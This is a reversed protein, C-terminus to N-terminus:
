LSPRTSTELTISVEQKKGERYFTLKVTDGISRTYLAKRLSQISTVQVDEIATIVDYRQLGAKQASGNAQVDVVIVGGDVEKPLALQEEVSKPVNALPHMSIGLVPREIMGKEELENVIKIAENSPIAFGIGEVISGGIKLSNIGIVQGAENILAGGSNGPNIAADTQIATMTWDKSGDGDIDTDVPRDVASIIGSTVSTALESGLPSGIAFTKEGVRVQDSDGFEAIAKVSSSSIKLVALDTWTDGGILEADEKSGDELIVQLGDAGKIVHNNTVIYAFKDDKKYIVGSGESAPALTGNPNEQRRGFFDVLTEKKLNVISVVSGRVNQIVESVDSSSVKLVQTKTGGVPSVGQSQQVPTPHIVNEVVWDSVGTALFFGIFGGLLSVGFIKKLLHKPHHEKKKMPMEINEKVYQDQEWEPRSNPSLDEHQTDNESM